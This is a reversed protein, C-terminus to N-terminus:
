AAILPVIYLLAAIICAAAVIVTWIRFEKDMSARESATPMEEKMVYTDLEESDAKGYLKQCIFFVILGAICWIIGTIIANHDLQTLMIFYIVISVPVGVKIFPAKYPRNLEPHKIRLGLAAAIGIIYYFLDGFLSVSAVFTIPYVTLILSLVGLFLISIYPTRYKPHLKAFFRPM